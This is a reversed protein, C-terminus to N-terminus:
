RRDMGAGAPQALRYSALALLARIGARNLTAQTGATLCGALPTTIAMVADREASTGVNSVLLSAVGDPAAQVTCLAAREGDDRPESTAPAAAIGAALTRGELLQPLMAEAMAGALLVGGFSLQAGRLCGREALALDRLQQQYESTRYDLALIERARDPERRVVCRSFNQMERAAQQPTGRTRGDQAQAPAALGIAPAIVTLYRLAARV